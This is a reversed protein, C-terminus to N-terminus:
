GESIITNAITHLNPEIAKRLLLIKKATSLNPALDEHVLKAEGSKLNSQNTLLQLTEKENNYGYIYSMLPRLTIKIGKSKNQVHNWNMREYSCSNTTDFYYESGEYDVVTIIHNGFLSSKSSSTETCAVQYVQYGLKKMIQYFFDENVKCDGEGTVIRAGYSGPINNEEQKSYQYTKHCSFQGNWLLKTYLQFCNEPNKCYQEMYNATKDVLEEYYSITEQYQEKAEEIQHMSFLRGSFITVIGCLLLMMAVSKVKKGFSVKQENYPNQRELKYNM